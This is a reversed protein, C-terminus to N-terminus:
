EESHKIPTASPLDDYVQLTPLPTHKAAPVYEKAGGDAIRTYNKHKEISYKLDCVPSEGQIKVIAFHSNLTGVEGATMLERSTQQYNASSSGNRGRTQGRTQTDITEKDLIKSVYELTDKENGGLFLFTSCNNLIQQWCDKDMQKLQSLDQFFMALSYNKSRATALVRLLNEIRAINAIEDLLFRVHMPLKGHHARATRNLEQFMQTFFMGCIFNFSADDDPIVVFIVRKETGLTDLHMEDRDTIRLVKELDLMSLRASATILISKATKGAAKKFGRYYRVAIHRPQSAALEEFLEDIPSKENEDEESATCHELLYLLTRFSYENKPAEYLIFFMLACLLQREAKEWFPDNSRSEPPTTNRILNDILTIVDKDERIYAFPNYGDSTDMDILNLVNFPIKEAILLPAMSALLEGKPDTAVYCGALQMMNPKVVFRSKGTGPAGIVCLNLNLNHRRFNLSVQLNETLIVNQSEEKDALKKTLKHPSEWHASGHEEGPRRNRTDSLVALCAFGGGAGGILLGRLSYASLRLTWPALLVANLRALFVTQTMGIEWVSGILLGLLIGFVPLLLAAYKRTRRGAPNPKNKKM